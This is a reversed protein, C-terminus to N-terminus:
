LFAFNGVIKSGIFADSLYSGVCVMGQLLNPTIETGSKLAWTNDFIDRASKQALIEQLYKIETKAHM